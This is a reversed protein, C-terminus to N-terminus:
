RRVGNYINVAANHIFTEQNTHLGDRVVRPFGFSREEYYVGQAPVDAVSFGRTILGRDRHLGYCHITGVFRQNDTPVGHETFMAQFENLLSQIVNSNWDDSITINMATARNMVADRDAREAANSPKRKSAAKVPKKDIYEMPINGDWYHAFNISYNGTNALMERYKAIQDKWEIVEDSTFMCYNMFDEAIPRPVTVKFVRKNV